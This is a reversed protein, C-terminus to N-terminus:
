GPRTVNPHPPFTLTARLGPAADELRLLGGHLQAVASVLALGLGSGPTSRAAEGRYFREVARGREEAPIGPGQDVVCIRVGDGERAGDLTVTSGAPAFKLANDVLNAVAQQVLARDGFLPLPGTLRLALTVGREEAIAEYLEAVDRLPPGADLAAFSSRRSGAEIESIRLLAQFISAVGDLDAVARDIAAHLEDPTKARLSAEELRSRARAIPTRLDHAIANSVQRVGDMLRSIRDLMDNIVDALQDLEDGRGSRRVRRTLDGMAIASATVSVNAISALFLNRVIRGGLLAVGAVIALTWILADTLLVNLRARVAVDRGIMLRFGSPLQYGHARALTTVGAKNVFLEVFMDTRNIETPWRELNGSIRRGRADVLLYLADDEVNQALREEILGILAPVGGRRWADSFGEADAQIAEETQRNILGATAWWVFWSIGATSILLLVAFVLAFRWGTSRTFRPRKMAAFRTGKMAAFRTGKMAAFRTGKM